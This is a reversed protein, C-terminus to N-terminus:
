QYIKKLIKTQEQLETLILQLLDTQIFQQQFSNVEYTNEENDIETIQSLQNISYKTILYWEGIQDVTNNQYRVRFEDEIIDWIVPINSANSTINEKKFEVTNYISSGSKRVDIYLSGSTNNSGLIVISASSWKSVNEWAGVFSQNSGLLTTTSNVISEFNDNSVKARVSNLVVTPQTQQSQSM